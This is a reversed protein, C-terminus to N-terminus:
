WWPCRGLVHTYLHLVVAKTVCILVLCHYVRIFGVFDFFEFKYGSKRGAADLFAFRFSSAVFAVQAGAGSSVWSILLKELEPRSRNRVSCKIFNHVFVCVM